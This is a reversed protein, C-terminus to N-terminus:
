KTQFCRWFYKAVYSSRFKRDFRSSYKWSSAFHTVVIDISSCWGGFFLFVFLWPFLPICSKALYEPMANWIIPIIRTVVQPPTFSSLSVPKSLGTKVIIRERRPTKAAIYIATFSKILHDANKFGSWLYIKKSKNRFM